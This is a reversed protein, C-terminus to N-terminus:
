ESARRHFVRQQELLGSTTTLGRARAAVNCIDDLDAAIRGLDVTRLEELRVRELAVAANRWQAM